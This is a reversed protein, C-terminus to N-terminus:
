RRSRPARHGPAHYAEWDIDQLLDGKDKSKLLYKLWGHLDKCPQLDFEGVYEHSIFLQHAWRKFYPRKPPVELLGHCHPHNRQFGEWVVLFGLRRGEYRAAHGYIKYSLQRHLRRVVPQLNERKTLDPPRDHWLTWSNDSAFTISFALARHDRWQELWWRYVAEKAERINIGLLLNGIPSGPPDYYRSDMYPAAALLEQRTLTLDTERSM